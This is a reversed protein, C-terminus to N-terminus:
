ECSLERLSATRGCCQRFPLGSGCRCREDGSLSRQARFDGEVVKGCPVDNMGFSPFAVRWERFLILKRGASLGALRGSRSLSRWSDGLIRLAADKEAASDFRPKEKRGLYSCVQISYFAYFDDLERSARRPMGYENVRARYAARAFGRPRLKQASALSKLALEPRDLRLLAVALWYLRQSLEGSCSAPCAETAARLSRVALDPRHRRLQRMGEKLARGGGLKPQGQM